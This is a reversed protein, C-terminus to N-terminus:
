GIWKILYHFQEWSFQFPSGGGRVKKSYIQLPLIISNLFVSKNFSTVFQSIIRLFTM